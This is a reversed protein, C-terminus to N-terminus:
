RADARRALFKKRFDLWYDGGIRELAKTANWVLWSQLRPWDAGSAVAAAWEPPVGRRVCFRGLVLCGDVTHSGTVPESNFLVRIGARAAASAVQRSFSGCPVSAAEVAEGLIGTLTAMSERWERDMEAPDSRAM